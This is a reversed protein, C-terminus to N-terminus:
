SRLKWRPDQSMLIVPGQTTSRKARLLLPIPTGILLSWLQCSRSNPLWGLGRWAHAASFRVCGSYYLPSRPEAPFCLQAGNGFNQWTYQYYGSHTQNLQVQISFVSATKNLLGLQILGIRRIPLPTTPRRSSEGQLFGNVKNTAIVDTVCMLYFYCCWMSATHPAVRADWCFWGKLSQVISQKKVTPWTSVSHTIMTM